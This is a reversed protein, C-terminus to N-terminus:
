IIKFSAQKKYKSGTYTVYKEGWNDQKGIGLTDNNATMKYGKNRVVYDGKPQYDRHINAVTQAADTKLVYKARITDRNYDNHMKKTYYASAVDSLVSDATTNIANDINVIPQLKINGDNDMTIINDETDFEKTKTYTEMSPMFVVLLVIILAVLGGVFMFLLQNNM